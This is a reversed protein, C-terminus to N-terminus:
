DNNYFLGEVDISKYQEAKLGAWGILGYSTRVLYIKNDFAQEALLVEIEYGSPLVALTTTLAKDSYLKVERLTVSKLGVYYFPQDNERFSRGELTFKRRVNFENLHGSTYMSGNGPIVINLANFSGLNKKSELDYLNFEYEPCVDFTLLARRNSKSDLLVEAIIISNVECEFDELVFGKPKSKIETFAANYVTSSAIDFTATAEIHNKVSITSLKDFSKRPEATQALAFLGMTSFMFTLLYIRM